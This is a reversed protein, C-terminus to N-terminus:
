QPYKPKKVTRVALELKDLRIFEEDILPRNEFSDLGKRMRLIGELVYRRQKQTNEYTLPRLRHRLIGRWLAIFLDPDDDLVLKEELPMIFDECNGDDWNALVAKTLDHVRGAAIWEDRIIEFAVEYHIGKNSELKYFDELADKFKAYSM